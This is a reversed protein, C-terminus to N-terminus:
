TVKAVPFNFNEEFCTEVIIWAWLFQKSQVIGNFYVYYVSQNALALKIKPVFFSIGNFFLRYKTVYKEIIFSLDKFTSLKKEYIFFVPFTWILSWFVITFTIM